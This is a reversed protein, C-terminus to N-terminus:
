IYRYPGMWSPEMKGGVRSENNMNRQLNFTKVGKAKRKQYQKKKNKRPLKWM